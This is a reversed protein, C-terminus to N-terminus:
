GEKGLIHWLLEKGGTTCKCQTKRGKAEFVRLKEMHKFGHGREPKLEFGVWYSLAEKGHRNLM